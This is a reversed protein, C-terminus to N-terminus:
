KSKTPTKPQITIKVDSVNSIEIKFFGYHSNNYFKTITRNKTM